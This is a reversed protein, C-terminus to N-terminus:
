QRKGIVSLATSPSLASSMATFNLNSVNTRDYLIGATSRWKVAHIWKMVCNEEEKFAFSSTGTEASSDNVEDNVDSGDGKEEKNNNSTDERFEGADLMVKPLSDDLFKVNQSIM